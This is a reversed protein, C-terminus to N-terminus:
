RRRALLRLVNLFLNLLDLYLALTAAVYQEDQYRRMLNSTDYLIFGSFLLIGFGSFVSGMFPLHFFMSALSVLVMGILGMFLFGGLFSFDKKSTHVYISLGGFIAATVGTAVPIISGMGHAIYMNFVPGLTIGSLTTFAFLLMLNLPYARQLMMCAFMLIFEAIVAPLFLGQPMSLGFYAGACCFLLSVGLLTYVKSVFESRDQVAANNFLMLSM